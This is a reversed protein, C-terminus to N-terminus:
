KCHATSRSGCVSRPIKTKGLVGVFMVPATTFAAAGAGVTPSEIRSSPSSQCFTCIQKRTFCRCIYFLFSVNCILLDVGYIIAWLQWSKFIVYEFMEVHLFLIVLNCLHIKGANQLRFVWGARGPADQPAPRSRQLRKMPTPALQRPARSHPSPSSLRPWLWSSVGDSTSKMSLGDIFPHSSPTLKMSVKM